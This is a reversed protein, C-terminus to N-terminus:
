FEDYRICKQPDCHRLEPHPQPAEYPTSLMYLLLLWQLLLAQRGTL